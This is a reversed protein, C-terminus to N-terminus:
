FSEALRKLREDVPQKLDLRLVARNAEQLAQWDGRVQAEILIGFTIRSEDSGAEEPIAIDTLKDGSIQIFMGHGADGKHLQGTSHLFRPGFGLTVARRTREQIVTRLAQLAQRTRETPQLYAQLSVYADDAAEALFAEVVAVISKEHAINSVISEAAFIEVGDFEVVPTEEPLKGSKEYAAVMERARAKASEVNPQNFPNIGLREGAIATALEWTFMMASLDYTDEFFIEVFPQGSARLLEMESAHELDGPTHIWVFLRDQRYRDPPLLAEGAVPLIGKGDKGTSEALLQELWDAFSELSRGIVLTLKDRGGLALEGMLAGLRAAPNGTVPLEPDCATEASRARSLLQELDLGILAAPVLGFFSLASYRGGINPDNLFLDRFDLDRAITELPSGPDTVGIFHSGAAEKGVLEQVRNFMTRFLSLTEVTSGSKTSVIFLSHEFPTEDIVKQIEDPHTSDLVILQLFGPAIGFTRLFVDPALSSGGMGLLIAHTFGDKRARDAFQRLRPLEARMQNPLDLWGLRNTIEKPEPNWITYDHEWIRRLLSDSEFTRLAQEVKEIADGAELRIGSRFRMLQRSKADIAALLEEYSATFAKVGEQQLDRTVDAMEVGAKELGNMVAKAQDLDATLTEAVEGHDIFKNLTAPPVTNVTEPGILGDVYMTDPYRPNKTSTSAWLPRQPKAGLAALKEWRDGSFIERFAQYALKSNAIGAKGRLQDLGKQDLIHDVATDVRSVFFSAVSAVSEPEGGDAILEELGDMYANAVQRYNPLSFILTVNVNIGQGILAAIAPIGEETAPVKIMLNPVGVAAFLHKAERITGQTDHALTPAVELSVFGDLGRSRDYVPRLIDAADHIDELVLAEYIQQPSQGKLATRLLSLDYDDSGAIAHEFISPNSTLGLVGQDVLEALGGNKILMRQINDYWISQGRKQLSELKNLLL